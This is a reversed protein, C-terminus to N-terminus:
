KRERHLEPPPFWREGIRVVMSWAALQLWPLLVANGEGGRPGFGHATMGGARFPWQEWMLWATVGVAAFTALMWEHISRRTRVQSTRRRLLAGAIAYALVVSIWYANRSSPEALLGAGASLGVYAAGHLGVGAVIGLTEAIRRVSKM